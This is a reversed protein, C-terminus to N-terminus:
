NRGGRRLSRSLGGKSARLESKISQQWINDPGVSCSRQDSEHLVLWRAMNNEMIPLSLFGELVRARLFCECRRTQLNCFTLSTLMQPVPLQCSDRDGQNVVKTHIVHCLTVSYRLLFRALTSIDELAKLDSIKMESFPPFCLMCMDQCSISFTKRDPVRPGCCRWKQSLM